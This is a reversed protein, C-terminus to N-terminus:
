QCTHYADLNHTLRKYLLLVRNSVARWSYTSAVKKANKSLELRLACDDLLKNIAGAISAPDQDVLLASNPFRGVINMIPSIKSAVIPLGYSMAELLVMGQTEAQTPFVFIIAKNYLANLEKNTIEGAFKVFRSLDRLEILQLIKKYYVKDDIPGAFIFELSIHTALVEPIAEVLAIQNKRPTLRGVNLIINKSSSRSDQMIPPEDVGMAVVTIKHPPIKFRYVLQEKITSTEAMIHNSFKFAIVELYSRLIKQSKMFLYPDHNTHVHQVNSFLRCALMCFIASYATHTHVIDIRNRRLINLLTFLSLFAFILARFKRYNISSFYSLNVEHFFLRKSNRKESPIDIVYVDCGKRSLNLSLEFVIKEIAAARDNSPIPYVGTAVQVVKM